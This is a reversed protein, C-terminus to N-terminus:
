RGAEERADAKLAAKLQKLALHVLVPALALPLTTLAPNRMPM